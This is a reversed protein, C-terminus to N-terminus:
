GGDVAALVDLVLGADGATKMRGQMFAASPTLASSGLEQALAVPVTLTLDPDTGVGPAVSEVVGDVLQVQWTSDGDPAGTVVVQVSGSAGPASGRGIWSDLWGELDSM